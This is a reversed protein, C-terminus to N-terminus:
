LSDDCPAELKEVEAPTDVAKRAAGRNTDMDALVPKVVANVAATIHAPTDNSGAILTAPDAESLAAIVKLVYGQFLAEDAEAHHQYHTAIRTFRCSGTPMDGVVGIQRDTLRMTVRIAVPGQCADQAPNGIDVTVAYAIDSSYFGYARHARDAGSEKAMRDLQAMDVTPHIDWADVGGLVLVKSHPPTACAAVFASPPLAPLTPM